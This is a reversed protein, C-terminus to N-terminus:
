GLDVPRIVVRQRGQFVRAIRSGGHLLFGCGSEEDKKEEEGAAVWVRLGRGLGGRTGTGSGECSLGGGRLGEVVVEEIERPRGLEAM